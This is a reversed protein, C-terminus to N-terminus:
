RVLKKFIRNQIKFMKKRAAVKLDDHGILHLIGHIVCYLLEEVPTNGYQPAQRRIQGWSIFVDGLTKEAGVQKGEFQSFSICDTDSRDHFFDWHMSKMRGSDVVHVSVGYDTKRIEGLIKSTFAALARKTVPCTRSSVRIQIPAAQLNKFNKM